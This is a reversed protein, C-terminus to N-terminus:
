GRSRHNARGFHLHGLTPKWGPARTPSICSDGLEVTAVRSDVAGVERYTPNSLWDLGDGKHRVGPERLRRRWRSASCSLFGSFFPTEITAKGLPVSGGDGHKRYIEACVTAWAQRISQDSARCSRRRPQPSADTSATSAPESQGGPGSAWRGDPGCALGWRRLQARVRQGLEALAAGVAASMPVGFTPPEAVEVALVRTQRPFGIGLRQAVAAMEPIGAQHLSPAAVRGLDGFELELITGAPNRGTTISDIVVARDYGAFVEILALGSAASEAVDVADGAGSLEAGLARVALVGVADDGAFENGLGLVLTRM